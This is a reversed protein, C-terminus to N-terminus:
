FNMKKFDEDRLGIYLYHGNQTIINKIKRIEKINNIVKRLYEVVIRYRVGPNQNVVLSYRTKNDTVLKNVLELFPKKVDLFDNEQNPFILLKLEQIIEAFEKIISIPIKKVKAENTYFVIGAPYLKGNGEKFFEIVRVIDVGEVRIDMRGDPYKKLVEVLKVRTGYEQLRDEFVPVIGFMISDDIVDQILQKYREEFIHLNVQTNPLVVLNLPFIPLYGTM